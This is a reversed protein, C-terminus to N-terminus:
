IKMEKIRDAIKLAVDILKEYSAEDQIISPIRIELLNNKLLINPNFQLISLIMEQISFNLLNRIYYEDNGKITCKDDFVDAGIQIDQMKLTKQIKIGIQTNGHVFMTKDIPMDFKVKIYTWPPSNKGGPMSFVQIENTNYTFTLKPYISLFGRSILGNRKIAQTELLSKVKNSIKKTHLLILIILPSMIFVPLIISLIFVEHISLHYMTQLWNFGSIGIFAFAILLIMLVIVLIIQNIKEKQM